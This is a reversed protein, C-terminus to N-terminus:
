GDLRRDLRAVRRYLALSRELMDHLATSLEGHAAAGSDLCIDSGELRWHPARAEEVTLTGEHVARRALLWSISFGLRASLRSLECAEVLPALPADGADPHHAGRDEGLYSRAEVALRLTENLLGDLMAVGSPTALRIISASM